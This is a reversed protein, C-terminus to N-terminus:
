NEAGGSKAQPMIRRWLMMALVLVTGIAAVPLGGMGAYILFFLGWVLWRPDCGGEDGYPLLGQGVETVTCVDEINDQAAIILYLLFAQWLLGAVLACALSSIGVWRWPKRNIKLSM